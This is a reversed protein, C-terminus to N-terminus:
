SLIPLTHQVPTRIWGTLDFHFAHAPSLNALEELGRIGGSSPSPTELAVTCAEALKRALAPNVHQVFRKGVVNVASSQTRQVCSAVAAM